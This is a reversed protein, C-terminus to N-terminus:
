NLNYKLYNELMMKIIDAPFEDIHTGPAPLDELYAEIYFIQHAGNKKIQLKFYAGKEGIAVGNTDTVVGFGKSQDYYLVNFILPEEDIVATESYVFGHAITSFLCAMIIIKLMKQKKQNAIM